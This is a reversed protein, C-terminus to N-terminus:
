HRHRIASLVWVGPLEGLEHHQGTRADPLRIGDAPDSVVEREPM